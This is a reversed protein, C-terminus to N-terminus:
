KIKLSHKLCLPELISAKTLTPTPTVVFPIPTQTENERQVEVEQVSAETATIFEINLQQEETEEEEDESSSEVVKQGSVKRKWHGGSLHYGMKMLSKTSYTFSYHLEKGDKGSLDIHVAQFLLIFVMGYPLFTKARRIIEKMQRMMIFPLNIAEGKTICEM